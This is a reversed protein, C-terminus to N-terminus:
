VPSVQIRCVVFPGGDVSEASSLSVGQIRPLAPPSLRRMFRGSRRNGRNVSSVKLLRVSRADIETAPDNVARGVRCDIPISPQKLHTVSNHPSEAIFSLTGEM